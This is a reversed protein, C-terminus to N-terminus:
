DGFFTLNPAVAYTVTVQDGFGVPIFGSTIGTPATVRGRTLDIATVTGGEVLLAGSMSAPFTFPSAGPTVTVAAPPPTTLGAFFKVWQANPAGTVPDLFPIQLAPLANAM